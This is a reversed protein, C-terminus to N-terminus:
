AELFCDADDIDAAGSRALEASNQKARMSQYVPAESVRVESSLELMEEMETAPSAVQVKWPISPLTVM